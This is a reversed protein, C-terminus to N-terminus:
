LTEWSNPHSICHENAVGDKMTLLIDASISIRSVDQENPYTGHPLSSPFLVLKGTTAEVDFRTFNYENLTLYESPVFLGVQEGANLSEQAYLNGMDEARVYYSLSFHSATHRHMPIFQSKQSITVWSKTIHTDFISSDFGMLSVYRSIHKKLEDFLAKFRKDLHLNDLQYDPNDTTTSWDGKNAKIKEFYPIINENINQYNDITDEAVNVGFRRNLIM